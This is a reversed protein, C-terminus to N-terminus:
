MANPDNMTGVRMVFSAAFILLNQVLLAVGAYLSNDKNQFYDHISMYVAASLSGMAIVMTFILQGRAKLAVNTGNYMMPDANLMGWDMVNLLIFAISMGVGPLWSYAAADSTFGNDDASAV